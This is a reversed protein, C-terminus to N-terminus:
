HLTDLIVDVAMEQYEDQVQRMVTITIQSDPVLSMMEKNYEQFSTIEETGMKVIVDGSQIGAVMAPSDMVIGTVYAGAPVGQSEQIEEPVDTGYIGLAAMAQGNSLKEINNKLDSIGLASVLNKADSSNNRQSIIGLVQGNLNIIVGSGSTSGYIDTTLLRYNGDTLNLVTDMSTIMGYAVSNVNGMPRGLAIVPTALLGSGSNSSGLKAAKIIEKTDEGIDALNVSIVALGTTPDAQKLAATVQTNDCFTVHVKEAQEVTEKETLIMLEKGNDAVILGATQGKNEFTNNFWDVDSVVGTVTVMSKAADQVLKYLNSYLKQYDSVSMDIKQVVTSTVPTSEKEEESETELVMDEPLMEENAAEEQLQVPAPDEEPYLWNSFVPELVLFTFCAILGFIVAMSATIITRKLLKRKNVPREKVKEKIFDIDKSPAGSATEPLRIEEGPEPPSSTGATKDKRDQENDSM